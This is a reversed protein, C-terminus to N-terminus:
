RIFTELCILESRLMSGPWSEVFSDMVVWRHDLKEFEFGVLVQASGGGEDGSRRDEDGREIVGSVTRRFM